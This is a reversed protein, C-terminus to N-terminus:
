DTEVAMYGDYNGDPYKCAPDWLIFENLGLDHIAKIQANM